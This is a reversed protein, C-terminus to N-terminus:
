RPVRRRLEESFNDVLVLIPGGDEAGAGAPALTRGM